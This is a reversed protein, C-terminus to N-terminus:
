SMNFRIVFHFSPTIGEIARGLGPQHLPAVDKEPCGRILACFYTLALVRRFPKASQERIIKPFEAARSLKLVDGGSSDFVAGAQNSLAFYNLGSAARTM